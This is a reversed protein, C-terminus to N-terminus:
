EEELKKDYYVDMVAGVGSKYGSYVSIILVIYFMFNVLLQLLLQTSYLISIIFLPM